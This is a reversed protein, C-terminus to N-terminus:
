GTNYQLTLTEQEKKKRKAQRQIYLNKKTNAAMQAVVAGKPKKHGM